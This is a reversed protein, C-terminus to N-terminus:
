LIFVIDVSIVIVCVTDENNSYYTFINLPPKSVQLFKPLKKIENLQRKWRSLYLLICTVFINTLIFVCVM